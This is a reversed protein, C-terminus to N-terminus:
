RCRMRARRANESQLSPAQRLIVFYTSSWFFIPDFLDTAKSVSETREIRLNQVEIGVGNKHLVNIIEEIVRSFKKVSFIVWTRVVLEKTRMNEKSYKYFEERHQSKPTSQNTPSYIHTKEHILCIKKYQHKYHNCLICFVCGHLNSM